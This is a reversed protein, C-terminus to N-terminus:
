DVVPHLWRNGSTSTASHVMRRVPVRRAGCTNMRADLCDGCGLLVAMGCKTLLNLATSITSPKSRRRQREALDGHADIGPGVEGLAASWAARWKSVNTSDDATGRGDSTCYHSAHRGSRAGPIRTPIDAHEALTNLASDLTRPAPRVIASRRRSHGALAQCDTPIPLSRM